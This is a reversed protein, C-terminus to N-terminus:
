IPLRRYNMSLQGNVEDVDYFTTLSSSEIIRCLKCVRNRFQEIGEKGSKQKKDKM